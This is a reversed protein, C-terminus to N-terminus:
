SQAHQRRSNRSISSAATAWRPSRAASARDMVDVRGGVVERLACCTFHCSSSCDILEGVRKQRGPKRWTLGGFDGMEVRGHRTGALGDKEAEIFAIINAETDLHGHGIVARIEHIVEERDLRIGEFDHGAPTDRADPDNGEAAIRLVGVRDHYFEVRRNVRMLNALKADAARDRGM